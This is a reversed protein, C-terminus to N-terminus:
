PMTSREAWTRSTATSQALAPTTWGAASLVAMMFSDHLLRGDTSVCGDGHISLSGMAAHSCWSSVKRLGHPICVFSLALLANLWWSALLLLCCTMTLHMSTYMQCLVVLLHRSVPVCGASISHPDIIQGEDDQLLYSFSGHLVGPSGMTLTAAHKDTDIGEGGAEIGIM